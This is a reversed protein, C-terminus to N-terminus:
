KDFNFIQSLHLSYHDMNKITTTTAANYIQPLFQIRASYNRICKERSDYFMYNRMDRYSIGFQSM